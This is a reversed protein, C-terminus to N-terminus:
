FIISLAIALNFLLILASSASLAALSALSFGVGCFSSCRLAPTVSTSDGAFVFSLSTGQFSNWARAQEEDIPDAFLAFSREIENEILRVMLGKILLNTEEEKTTGFVLWTLSTATGHKDIWSQIEVDNFM